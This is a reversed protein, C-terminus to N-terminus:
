IVAYIKHEQSLRDKKEREISDECAFRMEKVRWQM